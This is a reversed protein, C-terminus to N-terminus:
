AQKPFQRCTQGKQFLPEEGWHGEPLPLEKIAEDLLPKQKEGLRKYVEHQDADEM